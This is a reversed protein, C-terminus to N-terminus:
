KPCKNLSPGLGVFNLYQIFEADSLNKEASWSDGYYGSANVGGRSEIYEKTLGLNKMADAEAKSSRVFKPDVTKYLGIGALKAM